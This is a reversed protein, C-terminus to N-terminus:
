EASRKWTARVIETIHVYIQSLSESGHLCFLSVIIGCNLIVAFVGANTTVQREQSEKLSGACQKMLVLDEDSYRFSSQTKKWREIAVRSVQDSPEWVFIRTQKKNKAENTILYSVQYSISCDAMVVRQHINELAYGDVDSALSGEERDELANLKKASSEATKVSRRLARAERDSLDGAVANM